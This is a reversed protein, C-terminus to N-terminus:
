VFLAENTKVLGFLFDQELKEDWPGQSNIGSDLGVEKKRLLM